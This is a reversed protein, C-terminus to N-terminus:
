PTVAEGKGKEREFFCSVVSAVSALLMLVFLTVILGFNEPHGFMVINQFYDAISGLTEPPAVAFCGFATMSLAAVAIPIYDNDFFFLVAEGAIVALLCVIVWPMMLGDYTNAYVAYVILSVLSLALVALNLFAGVSKRKWLEKLNM